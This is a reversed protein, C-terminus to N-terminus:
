SELGIFKALLSIGFVILQCVLIVVSFFYAIFLMSTGVQLSSGFASYYSPTIQDYFYVYLLYLILSLVGNIIIPFVRKPLKIM